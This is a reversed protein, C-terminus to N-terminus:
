SKSIKDVYLLINISHSKIYEYYLVMKFFGKKLRKAGM